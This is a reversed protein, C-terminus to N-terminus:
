YKVDKIRNIPSELLIYEEKEEEKEYEKKKNDFQMNALIIAADMELNLSFDIESM